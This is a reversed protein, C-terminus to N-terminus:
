GATYAAFQFLYMRWLVVGIELALIAFLAVSVIRQSRHSGPSVAQDM